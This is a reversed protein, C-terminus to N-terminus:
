HITVTLMDLPRPLKAGGQLARQANPLGREHVDDAIARYAMRAKASVEEARGADLRRDGFYPGIGGLTEGGTSPVERCKM